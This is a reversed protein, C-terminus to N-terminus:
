PCPSREAITNQCEGCTFESRGPMRVLMLVFLGLLPIAILYDYIPIIAVLSTVLLLGAAAGEWISPSCLAVAIAIILISADHVIFHYSVLSAAAIALPLSPRRRAAVLLVVVSCAAVLFQIYSHPLKGDFLASFLGRLNIMMRPNTTYRRMDEESTLRLSMSLLMHAYERAGGLGVLWLSVLGAAVSSVALGVSFSWRRWVLFLLAIPIVIQFKFIGIGVLLGAVFEKQHDLAWLAGALLTLVIISDQGKELTRSIPFFAPILLFPLWDPLVTLRHRLLGVCLVLLAGNFAMFMWYAAKYPLLSLPVFLLEEFALHSIILPDHNEIPVLTDQFRQQTDYDYLEGAHGTRIMYGGVYLQRFDDLGQLALPVYYTALLLELGILLPLLGLVLDHLWLKRAPLPGGDGAFASAPTMLPFALGKKRPPLPGNM